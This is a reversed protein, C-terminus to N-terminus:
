RRRHKLRMSENLHVCNHRTPPMLLLGAINRNGWYEILDWAEEVVAGDDIVKQLRAPDVREKLNEVSLGGVIERTRRGVALRYARLQELNISISLKRVDGGSMANGTDRASIKMREFWGDSLFLQLGGAVLMNMTVDEIRAIHWLNWAVSHECNHPIRRIQDDSMDSLIEDQYSHPLTEDVEASHLVGHQVMFLKIAQEHEEFSLLSRRFEKQGQNWVKQDHKM